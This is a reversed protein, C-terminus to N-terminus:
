GKFSQRRVVRLADASNKRGVNVARTFIPTKDALHDFSQFDNVTAAFNMFARFRVIKEARRDAADARDADDRFYRYSGNGFEVDLLIKFETGAVLHSIIEVRQEVFVLM